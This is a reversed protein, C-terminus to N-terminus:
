ILLAIELPSPSLVIVGKADSITSEIIKFLRIDSRLDLRPVDKISESLFTICSCVSLSAVNNSDDLHPPTGTQIKILEPIKPRLWVLNAGKLSVILCDKIGNKWDPSLLQKKLPDMSSLSEHPPINDM